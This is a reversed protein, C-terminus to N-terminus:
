DPDAEKKIRYEIHDIIKQSDPPLWEFEKDRNFWTIQRRAYRRTNTKIKEIAEELTIKGDFHDFLEKYGVTNLSNLHRLHYLRRAEDILGDQIMQDVRRNIREHLDARSLNLAIKIVKFAREKKEHTILSSYPKGTQMSVELARMIRVPNSMDVREAYVPDYKILMSRLVPLGGNTYVTTLYQRIEPDSEPMNDIGNTVAQLYLGSGGTMIVVEHKKFLRSCLEIADEEFKSINFYEEPNINGIFHHNVLALQDASPAATGIVMGKYFQRSDASIIETNFHLAANIAVTTKGVATPGTIIVLFPINNLSGSAVM